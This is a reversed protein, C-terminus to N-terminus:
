GETRPTLDPAAPITLVRYIPRWIMNSDFAGPDIAAVQLASLKEAYKMVAERLNWWSAHGSPYSPHGAGPYPEPMTRNRTALAATERESRLDALDQSARNWQAYALGMVANAHDADRAHCVVAEMADTGQHSM